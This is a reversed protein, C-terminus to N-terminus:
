ISINRCTANRCFTSSHKNVKIDRLKALTYEINTLSPGFQLFEGRFEESRV